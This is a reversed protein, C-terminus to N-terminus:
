NWRLGMVGAHTGVQADVVRALSVCHGVRQQHSPLEVWEFGAFEIGGGTRQLYRPEIAGGTLVGCVQDGVIAAQALAEREGRGGAYVLTVREQAGPQELATAVVSRGRSINQPTESADLTVCGHTALLLGILLVRRM